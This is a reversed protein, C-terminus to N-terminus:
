SASEETSILNFLWRLWPHRPIRLNVFVLAQKRPYENNPSGTLALYPRRGEAMEVLRRMCVQHTSIGQEGAIRLDEATASIPVDAFRVLRSAAQANRHAKDENILLAEETVEKARSMLLNGQLEINGDANIESPKFLSRHRFAPVPMWGGEFMEKYQPNPQGFVKRACWQYAMGEPITGSPLEFPDSRRLAATGM